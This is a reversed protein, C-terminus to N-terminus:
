ERQLVPDTLQLPCTRPHSGRCRGCWVATHSLWCKALEADCLAATSLRGDSHHVSAAPEAQPLRCYVGTCTLTSAWESAM